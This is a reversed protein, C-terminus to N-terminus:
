VVKVRKLQENLTQLRSAVSGDIQKDGVRVVLGGLINQDVRTKLRVKVGFKAQLSTQLATLQAATLPVASVVEGDAEGRYEDFLRNYEDVIQPLIIARDKEIVLFLFKEVDARVQGGFVAHLVSRKKDRSLLPHHLVSALERSSQVTSAVEALNAAVAEVQEHKKAVEFLASAYRRAVSLEGTM